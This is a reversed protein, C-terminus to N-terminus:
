DKRIIQTGSSVPKGDVKLSYRGVLSARDDDWAYRVAVEANKQKASWEGVLWEVDKLSVLQAPDPVWERVSAMKWGEDERVHLVSYRSVAPEKEGPLTVSLSGEELATHKGLLKVSDIHVDVTAKPYKEFFERYSKEIEKRG